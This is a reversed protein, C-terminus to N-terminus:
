PQSFASVGRYYELLRKGEDRQVIGSAKENASEQMKVAGDARGLKYELLARASFTKFGGGPIRSLLKHATSVADLDFEVRSLLTWALQTDFNEEAPFNELYAKGLEPLERRFANYRVAFDFALLCYRRVKPHRTMEDRVLKWAQEPRQTSELMFLRLRLAASNGPDLSLIKRALEDARRDDGGRLLLRLEELMPSIRKQTRVSYKGSYYKDLMEPLDVAEGDWLIVGNRDIVFAKPLIPRSGLYEGATKQKEDRLLSYPISPNDRLFFSIEAAPDLAVLAGRFGKPAYLGTMAGLMAAADRGMPTRIQAFVVVRLSDEPANKERGTKWVDGQVSLVELEAADDGTSLAANLPLVVSLLTSLLLFTGTKKM